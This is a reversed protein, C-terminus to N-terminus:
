TDIENVAEEARTKVVSSIKVLDEEKRCLLTYLSPLFQQEICSWEIFVDRGM